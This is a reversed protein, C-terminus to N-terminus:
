GRPYCSIPLGVGMRDLLTLKVTCRQLLDEIQSM